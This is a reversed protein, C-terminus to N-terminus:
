NRSPDGGSRGELSAAVSRGRREEEADQTQQEDLATAVAELARLKDPPLQRLDALVPESLGGARIELVDTTSWRGRTSLYFKAAQVHGKAGPTIATKYLARAVKSIAQPKAIAITESYYKRLTDEGIGLIMATEKQTLGAVGIMRFVEERSQKTPEHKKGVTM